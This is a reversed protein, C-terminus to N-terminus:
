HFKPNKKLVDNTVDARATVNATVDARATVDVTVYARATVDVTVDARATVDAVVDTRAIVDDTVDARADNTVDARADSTVDVTVYARNPVDNTVDANVEYAVDAEVEDVCPAVDDLCAPVDAEDEGHRNAPSIAPFDSDLHGARIGKGETATRDGSVHSYDPSPMVVIKKAHEESIELPINVMVREGAKEGPLCEKQALWVCRVAKPVPVPATVLKKAAFRRFKKEWRAKLDNLAAKSKDDGDLIRNALLLFEDINFYVSPNSSDGIVARNMAGGEFGLESCVEFSPLTPDKRMPMDGGDAIVGFYDGTISYNGTEMTKEGHSKETGLFGLDSPEITAAQLSRMRGDEMESVNDVDEVSWVRGDISSSGTYIATTKTREEEERTEEYKETLEEYPAARELRMVATRM